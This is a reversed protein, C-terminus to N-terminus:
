HTRNGTQASSFWLPPTAYFSLRIRSSIHLSRFRSQTFPHRSKNRHFGSQTTRTLPSVSYHLCHEPIPCTEPSSSGRQLYAPQSCVNSTIHISGSSSSTVLSRLDGLCRRDLNLLLCRRGQNNQIEKHTKQHVSGQGM